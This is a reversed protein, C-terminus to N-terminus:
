WEQARALSRPPRLWDREIEAASTPRGLLFGQVQGCGLERLRHLQEETEVGEATVTAGLPEALALVASVIADAPRDEPLRAIFSRDLKFAHPTRERLAAFSSYGTGFDDVAIRVGAASLAQLAPRAGPEVACSETMELELVDAPLGVRDLVDLVRDAFADPLLQRTSVNVAVRPAASPGFSRHWAACQRCAQELVQMGLEHILGTEEAAAIFEAPPVQGRDADRWRALAEVAALHGDAVRVIPQYDVTVAGAAVARRLAARLGLQDWAQRRLPESFVEYRQRGNQKARQLALDAARLVEDAHGAAGREAPGGRDASLRPGALGARDAVAVGISATVVVEGGNVAYPESLAAVLRDAVGAAEEPGSVGDLLVAMEDGGLRSVLDEPRVTAELRRAVSILLADGADHGLQDNVAKFGDLDCYLVAFRAGPRREARHRAAELRDALLMRNALGTLPDHVAAHQVAAVHYQRGTVLAGLKLGVLTLVVLGLQVGLVDDVPDRAVLVVAAVTTVLLAVGVRAFGGRAAIWVVPVFVLYALDSSGGAPDGYAALVTTVLLAAQAAAELRPDRLRDAFAPLRSLRHRGSQGLREPRRPTLQVPRVLEPRGHWRGIVRRGAVLLVPAVTAVGLASGAWSGLTDRHLSRWSPEVLGGQVVQTVAVLLPGAIAALGLFWFVERLGPLRPDIRARRLLVYAVLAGVAARVVGTAVAAPWDPSGGGALAAHLLETLLLLPAYRPGGVLLLVVDLGSPPYWLPVDQGAQLTTAVTDLGLWSALYSLSM